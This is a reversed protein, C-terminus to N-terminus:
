GFTPAEDALTRVRDPVASAIGALRIGTLTSTAM